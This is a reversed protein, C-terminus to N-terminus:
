YEIFDYKQYRSYLQADLSYENYFFQASWFCVVNIYKSSSIREKAKRDFQRCCILCCFILKIKQRHSWYNHYKFTNHKERVKRKYRKRCCIRISQNTIISTVMRIHMTTTEKILRCIKNSNSYRQRKPKLRKKCKWCNKGSRLLNKQSSM